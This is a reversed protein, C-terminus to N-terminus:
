SRIWRIFRPTLITVMIAILITVSSNLFWTLKMDVDFILVILTRALIFAFSAWTFLLLWVVIGKGTSVEQETKSM